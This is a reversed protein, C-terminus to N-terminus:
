CLREDLLDLIQLSTITRSLGDVNETPEGGGFVNLKLYVSGVVFM